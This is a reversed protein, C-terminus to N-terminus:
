SISIIISTFRNTKRIRIEEFQRTFCVRCYKFKFVNFENKIDTSYVDFNEIYARSKQVLYNM